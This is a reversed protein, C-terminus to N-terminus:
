KMFQSEIVFKSATFKQWNFQRFDFRTYESYQMTGTFSSLKSVVINLLHQGRNDSGVTHM